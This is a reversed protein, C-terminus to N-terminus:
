VESMVEVLVHRHRGIIVSVALRNEPQTGVEAGM